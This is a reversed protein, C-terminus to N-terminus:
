VNELNVNVLILEVTQYPVTHKRGRVYATRGTETIRVVEVPNLQAYECETCGCGFGKKIIVFDGVKIHTM